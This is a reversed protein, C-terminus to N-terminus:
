SKTETGYNVYAQGYDYNDWCHCDNPTTQRNGCYLCSGCEGCHTASPELPDTIYKASCTHCTITSVEFQSFDTFTRVKELIELDPYLEDEIFDLQDSKTWYHTLEDPEQGFEFKGAAWDKDFDDDDMYRYTKNKTDSKGLYPSSPYGYNVYTTSYSRIYSNNSWWIDDKWHGLHENVIYWDNQTDEDVSLIVLKNGNAWDGLEKLKEPNDLSKVGGIYPLVLEAFLKTDSRNDNIPMTLPLIGNHGLVNKPSDGIDFPHCNNVNLSGHTAIRFHFMAPGTYTKRLDSWRMWLKEFDMDHDKIIAVGAHIAFGFGDPNAKASIAAREYDLNANNLMFTLLCM